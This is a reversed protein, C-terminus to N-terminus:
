PLDAAYLGGTAGPKVYVLKTGSVGFSPEVGAVVVTPAATAAADFIKVDITLGDGVQKPNDVFLAKTGTPLPRALLAAAVM